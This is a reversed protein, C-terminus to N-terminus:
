DEDFVVYHLISIGSAQTRPQPEHVQMGRGFLDIFCCELDNVTEGFLHFNRCSVEEDIAYGIKNRPHDDRGVGPYLGDHM